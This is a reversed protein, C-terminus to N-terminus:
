TPNNNPTPCSPKELLWASLQCDGCTLRQQCRRWHDLGSPPQPVPIAALQKRISGHHISGLAVNRSFICPYIRGDASICLKGRRAPLPQPAQQSSPAARRSGRGIARVTDSGIQAAAVGTDILLRRTAELDDRNEAMTIISVRLPLQMAAVRRIAEMTRAHSGPLRTIADHHRPLHSYLSFAFHPRFPTLQQLLKQHLLLGNTYIEITPFDLAHAHAVLAVLDPHILPDGGTFQLRPNGMARAEDLVRKVEDASLTESREPDSGAYCHLCRENCRLTLEIFLLGLDDCVLQRYADSSATASAIGELAPTHRALQTLRRRDAQSANGSAHRELATALSGTLSIPACGHRHLTLSAGQQLLTAVEGHAFFLLRSPQKPITSAADPM